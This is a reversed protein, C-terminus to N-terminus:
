FVHGETWRYCGKLNHNGILGSPLLPEKKTASARTCTPCHEVIDKIQKAISPWRVSINARLRCKQIGQHGDHVKSLIESQLALGGCQYILEYDANKFAKIAMM